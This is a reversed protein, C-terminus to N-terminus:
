GQEVVVEGLTKKSPRCNFFLTLDRIVKSVAESGGPNSFNFFFFCMTTCWLEFRGKGRYSGRVALSM